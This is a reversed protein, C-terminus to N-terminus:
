VRHRGFGAGNKSNQNPTGILRVFYIEFLRGMLSLSEAFVELNAGDISKGFFRFIIESSGLKNQRRQKMEGGVVRPGMFRFPPIFM